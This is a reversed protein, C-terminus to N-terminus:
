PNCPPPPARVAALLLMLTATRQQGDVVISDSPKLQSRQVVVRGLGHPALGSPSAVDRWLRQQQATDWCYRRQFLPVLLRPASRLWQGWPRMACAKATAIRHESRLWEEPVEKVFQVDSGSTGCGTLTVDYCTGEGTSRSAAVIAVANLPLGSHAPACLRLKDGRNHAAPHQAAAAM